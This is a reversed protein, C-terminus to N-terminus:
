TGILCLYLCFSLLFFQFPHILSLCVEDRKDFSSFIIGISNPKMSLANILKYSSSNVPPGLLIVM